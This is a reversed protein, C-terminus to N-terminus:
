WIKSMKLGKSSLTKKTYTKPTARSKCNRTSCLQSMLKIRPRVDARYTLSQGRALQLLAHAQSLTTVGEDAIIKDGSMLPFAQGAQNIAGLLARRAIAPRAAM